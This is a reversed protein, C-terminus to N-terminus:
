LPPNCVKCPEYGQKKAEKLSIAIKSNKLYRCGANHYKRGMNTVYVTTGGSGGTTPVPLKQKVTGGTSKKTSGGTTKGVVNGAAAAGAVTKATTDSLKQPPAQEKTTSAKKNVTITKADSTFIITGDKDTRYITAGINQLRTLTANTPHGYSNGAGVEIVAYKPKVKNLFSQSTSTKSGHHGVKLVDAKVDATIQRESEEGADGMFLFKNNGYTVKIVASYENLDDGTIYVPAMIDINLNGVKVINVGAKATHIKLGKNQIAVLLKEYTKTNTSKKPMYIKGINLKSVVTAMGGIHDAHPHTAILYDIKNYGLAKIYSVIQTGNDSNGADILMTQKNPLELFESDGQGVDMYHVKLKAGSSPAPSSSRNVQPVASSALSTTTANSSSGATSPSDSSATISSSPTSSVTAAMSSAFQTSSTSQPSTAASVMTTVLPLVVAAIAMTKTIEFKRNSLFDQFKPNFLLAPIIFFLLGWSAPLSFLGILAMFGCLVSIIWLGAKKV